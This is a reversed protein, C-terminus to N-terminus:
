GPYAPYANPDHVPGVYTASGFGLMPYFLWPLFILGLGWGVDKGFAKAMDLHMMFAFVINVVPIFLMLVWWIPRGTIEVHVIKNYVPVIAAWGPKGAKSYLKWHAILPALAIAVMALMFVAYVLLMLIGLIVGFVDGGGSSM